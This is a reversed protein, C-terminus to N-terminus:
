GTEPATEEDENDPERRRKGVWAVFISVEYLIILPVMAMVMTLPDQPTILASLLAIVFIAYARIKRLLKPTILGLRALIFSIVPLEFIVGFVLIMRLVFSIYEKIEIQPVAMDAGFTLFFHLAYPIIIFYAMCAGASFCLVTVALLIPMLRREHQFLGPIVFRWVEWAVYPLALIFAGWLSINMMALLNGAPKLFILEM